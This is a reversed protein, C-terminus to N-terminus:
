SPQVLRRLWAVATRPEEGGTSELVAWECSVPGMPGVRYQFRVQAILEGLLRAEGVADRDLRSVAAVDFALKVVAPTLQSVLARAESVPLLTQLALVVRARNAREALPAVAEAFRPYNEPPGPEAAGFLPLVLVPVEAEAAAEVLRELASLSRSRVASDPHTFPHDLLYGALVSSIAVGSERALARLDAPGGPRWLAHHEYDHPGFVLELGDAGLERAAAFRDNDPSKVLDARIAIPV